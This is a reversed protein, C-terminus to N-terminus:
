SLFKKLFRSVKDLDLHIDSKGWLSNYRNNSRRGEGFLYHYPFELTDALDRYCANVYRPHFIEFVRCGDPAFVLNSLGAGHPGMVIDAKGFVSIQEKMTLEGPIIIEFGFDKLLPFLAEENIIRRRTADSRSVYIRMGGSNTTREPQFRERLFRCSFSSPHGSHSPISPVVLQEAQIHVNPRAGYQKASALGLLELGERQFIKDNQVYVKEVGSTELVSWRPLIDFLWHFYGRAGNLAMVGLHGPYHEPEPLRGAGLLSHYHKPSGFEQCLDRVLVNDSSVISGDGVVRGEKFTFEFIDPDCYSIIGFLGSQADEELSSVQARMQERGNQINRSIVATQEAVSLSSPVPYSYRVRNLARKPLAILKRALLDAHPAWNM